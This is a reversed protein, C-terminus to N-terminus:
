VCHLRHSAAVVVQGRQCRRIKTIGSLCLGGPKSLALLVGRRQRQIAATALAPVHKQIPGDQPLEAPELNAAANATDAAASLVPLLQPLVQAFICGCCGSTWILSMCFSYFSKFSLGKVYPTHGATAALSLRM